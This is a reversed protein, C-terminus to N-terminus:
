TRTSRSGDMFLRYELRYNIFNTMLRTGVEFNRSTDRSEFFNVELDRNDRLSDWRVSDEHPQIHMSTLSTFLSPTSDCWCLDLLMKDVTTATFHFSNELRERLEM